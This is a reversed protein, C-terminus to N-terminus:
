FKYNVAATLGNYNVGSGAVDTRIVGVRTSVNKNLDVDVGVSVRNDLGKASAGAFETKVRGHDYGVFGRVGKAVPMSGEVAYRWTRGDVNEQGLLLETARFSVRGTVSVPGVNASHSYGLEFGNGNAVLPGAYLKGSGIGADVSGYKGFDRKLSGLVIHSSGWVGAGTMREYDYKVTGTVNSASAATAAAALAVIAFIKKM